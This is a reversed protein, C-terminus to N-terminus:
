SVGGDPTACPAFVAVDNGDDRTIEVAMIPRNDEDYTLIENGVYDEREHAEVKCKTGAPVMPAEIGKLGGCTHFPTHPRTSEVVLQADCNPCVWHQKPNPTLIPVDM